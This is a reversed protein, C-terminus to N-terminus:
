MPIEEIKEGDFDLLRSHIKKAEPDWKYFRIGGRGDGQSELKVVGYSRNDIVILQAAGDPTVMMGIRDRMPSGVGQPADLAMVAGGDDMTGMGGREVGKDDFVTIGAARSRRQTDKADQGIVVRAVGKDDVVVLRRTRVEDSPPEVARAMGSLFCAGGALVMVAMAAQMRRLRRELESIRQQESM